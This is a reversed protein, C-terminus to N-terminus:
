NRDSRIIKGQAELAAKAIIREVLEEKSRESVYTVLLGVPFNRVIQRLEEIPKAILERYLDSDILPGTNM